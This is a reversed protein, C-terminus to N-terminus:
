WVINLKGSLKKAKIKVSNASKLSCCRSLTCDAIVRWPWRTWSYEKAPTLSTNMSSNQAGRLLRSLGLERPKEPPREKQTMSWPSISPVVPYQTSSSLLPSTQMKISNSSVKQTYSSFKIRPNRSSKQSSSDPLTLRLTFFLALSRLALRSEYWVFLPLFSALFTLSM